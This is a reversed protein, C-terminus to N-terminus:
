GLFKSPEEFIKILDHTAKDSETSKPQATEPQNIMEAMESITPPLGFNLNRKRDRVECVAHTEAKNALITQCALLEADHISTWLEIKSQNTGEKGRIIQNSRLKQLHEVLNQARNCVAVGNDNQVKGILERWNLSTETTSSKTLNTLEELQNTLLEVQEKLLQNQETLQKSNM